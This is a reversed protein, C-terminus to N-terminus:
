NVIHILTSEFNFLQRIIRFSPVFHHFCSILHDYSSILDFPTLIVVFNLNCLFYLM